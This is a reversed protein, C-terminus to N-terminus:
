EPSGVAEQAERQDLFVRVHEIRRDRIRVVAFTTWEVRLGSTPGLGRSAVECLWSDGAETATRLEFEAGATGRLNAMWERVGPHGRYGHVPSDPMESPEDIQCHEAFSAVVADVDDSNFADLMRRLVDLRDDSM